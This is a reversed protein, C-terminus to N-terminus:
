KKSSFFKHKKKKDPKEAKELKPLHPQQTPYQNPKGNMPMGGGDSNLRLAGLAATPAGAGPNKINPSPVGVNPQAPPPAQPKPEPEFLHEPAKRPPRDSPLDLRRRDMSLDGLQRLFLTPSLMHSTVLFVEHSSSQSVEYCSRAEAYTAGGAMVVVLRQRSEGSALRTKAWTPKASRLSAQSVINSGYPANTADVVPKTFPFLVQDLTGNIHQELLTKLAPRFRSLAYEDLSTQVPPARSFIASPASKDKLPKEVRAGLLEMNQVIQCDLDPLQAHAFLKRMDAPVLGDRYLSYLM